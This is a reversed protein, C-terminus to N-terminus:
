NILVSDSLLKKKYESPLMGYKREFQVMAPTGPTPPTEHYTHVHSKFMNVFDSLFDVLIDGYPLQHAKKIINTMTEDSIGEKNDNTDFYPDGNPSILLVKDAVVAAVSEVNVKETDVSQSLIKDIINANKNEETLKSPYYKLKIYAPAGNNFSINSHSAEDALHVGCRIRIDNDSLIIDSNKRGYIAIDEDEAFAGHTNSDSKPAADPEKASGSLLSLSNLAGGKYHFQPQSIIPGIYLRQSDGKGAIETIVFVYEGVKPIIHILKPMLPFAYALESKKKYNDSPLLQVRIRGGESPDYNDVVEGVCFNNLLGGVM